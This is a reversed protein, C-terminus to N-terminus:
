PELPEDVREVLRTRSNGPKEERALWEPPTPDPVNFFPDPSPGSWQNLGPCGAITVMAFVAAALHAARRNLLWDM